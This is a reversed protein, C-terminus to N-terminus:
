RYFFPFLLIAKSTLNLLSPSTFPADVDVKGERGM